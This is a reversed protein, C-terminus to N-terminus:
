HLTKDKLSCLRTNLIEELSRQSFVKLLPEHDVAIILNSCSLVFFKPKHLADTVTLAEREVPAYRSEAAHTFRSGVITVKWGTLCCVPETSPCHCHKQFLWLGIGTTSWDTALCTPKSKEFIRAGEEIEEIIVSKSDKFLENLESDWKFPTGPKLSQRFPLMRETATFAYLVQNVFEDLGPASIASTQLHQSTV